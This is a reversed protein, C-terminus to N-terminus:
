LYTKEKELIRQELRELFENPNPGFHAERHCNPCIGAVHELDDPGDDALRRTHHVGLFPTGNARIFPAPANCAECVGNARMLVYRAITSSRSRYESRTINTSTRPQAAAIAAVRLDVISDETSDLNNLDDHHPFGEVPVLSFLLLQDNKRSNIGAQLECGIVRYEGIFRQKGKWSKKPKWTEFVLIIGRHEALVKNSRTLRQNGRTGQGFYRFTGDQNWGDEYGARKGHRGGSFVAIYGPNSYGYVIGSQWQKSGLFALIGERDYSKGREFPHM